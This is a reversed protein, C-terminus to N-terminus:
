CPVPPQDPRMVVVALALADFIHMREDETSWRTRERPMRHKLEPFRQVLVRAIEAKTGPGLIGQVIKQSVQCLGIKRQAALAISLDRRRLATERGKIPAFNELVLATPRGREIRTSVRELFVADDTAPL